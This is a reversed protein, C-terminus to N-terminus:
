DWSLVSDGTIPITPGLYKPKVKCMVNILAKVRAPIERIYNYFIGRYSRKDANVGVADIGLARALYVARPLHFHQSVVIASSVHFIHVARYMSDYTDFGAHDLFIDEAPIGAALLYRKVTNVEDYDQRSHDGSVLIKNVKKQQYLVVATQARDALMDSMRGDSYVKAGLVIAVTKVPVNDITKYIYSTSKAFIILNILGVMCIIALFLRVGYYIAQRYKM